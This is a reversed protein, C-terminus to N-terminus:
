RMHLLVAAEIRRLEIEGILDDAIAVAVPPRGAAEIQPEVHRRAPAIFGGGHLEPTLATQADNGAPVQRAVMSVAAIRTCPVDPDGHHLVLFGRGLRQVAQDSHEPSYPM